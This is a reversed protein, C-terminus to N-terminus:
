KKVGSEDNFIVKVNFSCPMFGALDPQREIRAFFSKGSFFSVQVAYATWARAANIKLPHCFSFALLTVLAFAEFRKHNCDGSCYDIFSSHRIFLGRCLRCVSSTYEGGEYM